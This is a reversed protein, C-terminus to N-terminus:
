FVGGFVVFRGASLSFFVRSSGWLSFFSLFLGWFSLSLSFFVFSPAPSPFLLAFNQATRRLATQHNPGVRDPGLDIPGLDAM